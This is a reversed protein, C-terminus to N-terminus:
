NCISPVTPYFKFSLSVSQSPTRHVLDSDVVFHAVSQVPENSGDLQTVFVPSNHRYYSRYM